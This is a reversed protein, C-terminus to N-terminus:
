QQQEKNNTATTLDAASASHACIKSADLTALSIRSASFPKLSDKVYNSRVERAADRLATVVVAVTDDSEFWWIAGRSVRPKKPTSLILDCYEDTELLTLTVWKSRAIRVGAGPDHVVQYIGQDEMICRVWDEPNSGPALAPASTTM